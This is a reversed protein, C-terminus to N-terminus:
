KNFQALSLPYHNLRAPTTDGCRVRVVVAKQERACVFFEVPVACVQLCYQIRQRSAAVTMKLRISIVAFVLGHINIQMVNSNLDCCGCELCYKTYRFQPVYVEYIRASYWWYSPTCDLNPTTFGFSSLTNLDLRAMFFITRARKPLVCGLLELLEIAGAAM